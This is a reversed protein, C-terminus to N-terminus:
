KFSFVGTNWEDQGEKDLMEQLREGRVPAVSRQTYYSPSKANRGAPSKKRQGTPSKEAELTKHAIRSADHPAIGEIGTERISVSDASTGFGATAENIRPEVLAIM